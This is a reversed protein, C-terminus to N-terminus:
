ESRRRRDRQADRSRAKVCCEDKECYHRKGPAPRRKPAYPMNCSSCMALGDSGAVALFLQIALAGVLGEGSLQVELNDIWSSEPRVDGLQLWGAIVDSLASKQSKLSRKHTTTSPDGDLVRWDEAKGRNGRHLEAAVNLVSRVVRAYGRWLEVPEWCGGRRGFGLPVCGKGFITRVEARPSPVTPSPVSPQSATSASLRVLGHISQRLDVSLYGPDHMMPMGHKCIYLVGWRRAYKAIQSDPAEPLNVFDELLRPGAQVRRNRETFRWLLRTGEVSVFGPVRWQGASVPRELAGEPTTLGGLPWKM